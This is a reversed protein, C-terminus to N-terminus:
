IFREAVGAALVGLVMLFKWWDERFDFAKRKPVLLALADATEKRRAELDAAIQKRSDELHSAVETRHAELLTVRRDHEKCGGNIAKLHAEINELHGGQTVLAQANLAAQTELKGVTIKVGDLGSTVNSLGTSVNNLLAQVAPDLPEM